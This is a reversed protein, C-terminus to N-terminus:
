VGGQGVGVYKIGYINEKALTKRGDIVIKQKMGFFDSSGMKGFEDWETLILCIDANQLAEEKTKCYIIKKRIVKKANEIAAPDYAKVIAGKKALASIVKISPAERMDDTKPKFSLGLIAVIKKNLNMEKEALEVIRLPQKENLALASAIIKPKYGQKKAQYLLSRLDKGFCSGGWGIGANLFDRGIRKDFGIAHAVIYTDIKLKDCINAIENIFSIKTALFANSAYKIMEATRLDTKIIPAKLPMYVSKVIDFDKESDSGIVNRDANLFNSIANGQALFEPSMAIGFEGLKRGSKKSIIAGVKETTGVPVTSKVVVTHYIHYANKKTFVEGIAEACQFIQSLDASGNKNSPTGVCIFIIERDAILEYNTSAIFNKAELVKKLMDDLQPEYFPAIGANLREITKQTRGICVVNNGLHALCVATILGVYGTGIVSIKMVNM